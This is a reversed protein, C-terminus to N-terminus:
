NIGRQKKIKDYGKYSSDIFDTIAGVVNAFIQVGAGIVELSKSIGM